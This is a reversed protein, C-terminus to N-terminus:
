LLNKVKIKSYRLSRKILDNTQFEQHIGLIEIKSYINAIDIEANM